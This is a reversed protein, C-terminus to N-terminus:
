PRVSALSVLLLLVPILGLVAIGVVRLYSGFTMGRAWGTLRTVRGRLGQYVAVLSAVLVAPPGVTYVFLM